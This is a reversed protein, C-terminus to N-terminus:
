KKVISTAKGYKDFTVTPSYFWTDGFYKKGWNALYDADVGQGSFQQLYKRANGGENFKMLHRQFAKTEDSPGSGKGYPTGATVGLMELGAPAAGTGKWVAMLDDIQRYPYSGGGGSSGKSGSISAKYAKIDADKEALIQEIPKTGPPIGLISYVEENPAGALWLEWARNYKTEEEKVAQEAQYRAAERAAEEQRMSENMGAKLWDLQTNYIDQARQYNVGYQKAYQDQLASQENDWQQRAALTPVHIDDRSSSINVPPTTFRFEERAPPSYTPLANALKKQEEKWTNLWELTTNYVNQNRDNIVKQGNLLDVYPDGYTTQPQQLLAGTARDYNAGVGMADRIQNAWHHAAQAGEYDGAAMKQNYVQGARDIELYGADRNTKFGELALEWPEKNSPNNYPNAAVAKEAGPYLPTHAASATYANGYLSNPDYQFAGPKTGYAFENAYQNMMGPMASLDRYQGQWLETLGGKDWLSGPNNKLWNDAMTGVQSYNIFGPSNAKGTRYDEPALGWQGTTYDLYTGALPTGTLQRQYSSNNRADANWTRNPDATANAGQWSFDTYGGSGTGTNGIKEGYQNWVAGSNPNTKGAVYDKYSQTAASVQAATPKSGQAAQTDRYWQSMDTVPAAPTYSSGGGGSAGSLVSATEAATLQGGKQNAAAVVAKAGATDSSSSM